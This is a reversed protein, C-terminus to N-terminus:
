SATETSGTEDDDFRVEGKRGNDCWTVMGIADSVIEWLADIISNSSRKSKPGENRSSAQM